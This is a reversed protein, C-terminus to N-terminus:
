VEEQHEESTPVSRDELSELQKPPEPIEREREGSSLKMGNNGRVM